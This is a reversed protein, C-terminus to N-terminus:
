HVQIVHLFQVISWLLHVNKNCSVVNLKLGTNDYQYIIYTSILFKKFGDIKILNEKFKV